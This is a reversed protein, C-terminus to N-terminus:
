PHYDSYSHCKCNEDNGIPYVDEWWTSNNGEINSKYMNQHSGCKKCIRHYPNRGGRFLLSEKTKLFIALVGGLVILAFFSLVVIDVWEM